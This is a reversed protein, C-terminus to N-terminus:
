LKAVIYLQARAKKIGINFLEKGKSGCWCAKHVRDMKGDEDKIVTICIQIGYDTWWQKELDSEEDMDGIVKKNVAIKFIELEEKNVETFRGNEDRTAVSFKILDCNICYDRGKKRIM